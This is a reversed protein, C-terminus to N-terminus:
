DGSRTSSRRARGAGTDPLPRRHLHSGPVFETAVGVPFPDLPVLIRFGDGGDRHWGEHAALVRSTAGLADYVRPPRSEFMGVELLVGLTQAAGQVVSFGIGGISEKAANVMAVDPIGPTATRGDPMTLFGRERWRRLTELTPEDVVGPVIVVGDRLLSEIAATVGTSM